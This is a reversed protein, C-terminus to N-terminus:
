VAMHADDQDEAMRRGLRGKFHSMPLNIIVTILNFHVHACKNSNHFFEM